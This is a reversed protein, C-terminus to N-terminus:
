LTLKPGKFFLMLIPILQALSKNPWVATFSFSSFALPPLSCKWIAICTQSKHLLSLLSFNQYASDSQLVIWSPILCASPFDKLWLHLDFSDWMQYSSAQRLTGVINLWQSSAAWPFCWRLMFAPTSASPLSQTQRENLSGVAFLDPLCMQMHGFSAECTICMRSCHM